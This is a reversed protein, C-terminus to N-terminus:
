RAYIALVKNMSGHIVIGRPGKVKTRFAKLFFYFFLRPYGLSTGLESRLQCHSQVESGKAEVEYISPNYALEM